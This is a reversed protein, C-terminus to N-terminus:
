DLMAVTAITTQVVQAAPGQDGGTPVALTTLEATAVTAAFTLALGIIPLLKRLDRMFRRRLPKRRRMATFRVALVRSWRIERPVYLHADSVFM